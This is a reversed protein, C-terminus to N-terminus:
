KDDPPIPYELSNLESVEPHTFYGLEQSAQQILNAEEDSMNEKHLFAIDYSAGGSSNQKETAIGIVIPNEKYQSLAIACRLELEQMRSQRDVNIEKSLFVYTIGSPAPILRSDIRQSQQLFDLFAKSLLRRYYRNEKAMVRLAMEIDELSPGLLLEDKVAYDAVKEIIYDWAYSSGEAKKKLRYQQNSQFDKWIGHGVSIIGSVEPITRNNRLYYALFDEEGGELIVTSKLSEKTVLYEVFDTITDLENLIIEFSIEDFVHIYGHGFEGSHINVKEKGGFAIAIRHIKRDAIEPLLLGPTGDKRIIQNITELYREAGYLQKVSSDIAKNRWRKLEALSPKKSKLEIEKVSFIVIDPDCVVLIDCLEKGKKGKPNLYSWLSLFTGRCVRYAFEESKNIFKQM